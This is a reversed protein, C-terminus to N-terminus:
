SPTSPSLLHLLASTPVGRAEGGDSLLSRYLAHALM